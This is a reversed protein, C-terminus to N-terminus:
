APNGSNALASAISNFVAADEDPERWPDRDILYDAATPPTAGPKIHGAVYNATLRAVAIEVCLDPDPVKALYASWTRLEGLPM